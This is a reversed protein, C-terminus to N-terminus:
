KVYEIFSELNIINNERWLLSANNRLVQAGVEGDEIGVHKWAIKKDEKGIILMYGSTRSSFFLKDKYEAYHVYKAWGKDDYGFGVPYDGYEEVDGNLTDVVLINEAQSPLIIFENGYQCIRNAAKSNCYYNKAGLFDSVTNLDSDWIVVTGDKLLIYYVGNKAVAHVVDQLVYSLQVTTFRQEKYDFVLVNSGNQPFLVVKNGNEIGCIYMSESDTPYAIESTSKTIINFVVVKGLERTFVYLFGQNEFFCAYNGDDCKHCAIEYQEVKQDLFGFRLLIHGDVSVAYLEEGVIKVYDINIMKGNDSLVYDRNVHVEETNLDMFYMYGYDAFFYLKDNFIDSGRFFLEMIIGGILVSM